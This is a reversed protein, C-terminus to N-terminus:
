EYYAAWAKDSEWVSVKVVDVDRDSFRESLEGYLYRAINESSPNMENFPPVDNLCTHDLRAIIDNAAQKLNQFDIGIGIDNLGETQVTVEVKWNHGHLEECKGRYHLLRHAAAFSTQISIEFM